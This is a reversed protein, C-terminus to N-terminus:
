ERRHEAGPRREVAPSTDSTGPTKVSPRKPPRRVEGASSCGLVLPPTPSFFELKKGLVRPGIPGNSLRSRNQGSGVDFIASDVVPFTTEGRRRGVLLSRSRGSNGLGGPRAQQGAKRRQDKYHSWLLSTQTLTKWLRRSRHATSFASKNRTSRGHCRQSLLCGAAVFPQDRCQIDLRLSGLRPDAKNGSRIRLLRRTHALLVRSYPRRPFL